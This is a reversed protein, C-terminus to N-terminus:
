ELYMERLRAIEEETIGIRQKLFGNLGGCNRDVREIFEALAEPFVFTLRERTARSWNKSGPLGPRDVEDKLGINSLFFDEVADKQCVGLATLTLIAAIGTRDKGQACHFFVAGEKCNLLIDFYERYAHATYESEAFKAYVRKFSSFLDPEQGSSSDMKIEGRSPELVPISHCVAGSVPRNPQRICEDAMRFDVIERVHYDESLRRIDEDSADSLVAGRLLRGEKVHKGDAGIMGGLDRVNVIGDFHVWM